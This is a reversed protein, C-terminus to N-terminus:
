GQVRPSSREKESLHLTTRVMLHDSPFANDAHDPILRCPGPHLSMGVDAPDAETSSGYHDASGVQLGLVYIFDIRDRPEATPPEIQSWTLGPARYPDPHAHRFADVYGADVLRGTAPWNVVPRVTGNWDAPSPVNFDGAVIVPIDGLEARLRDTEALVTAIQADRRREGPLALVEDRGSPLDPALYPGYDTHDLHVSWVLLPGRRSEVIAATAYPETASPLVRLPTTAMVATDHGQQAHNMGTAEALRRGAEGACEQLAVIDAHQAKIIDAQKRAADTIPSGGLWLNWSVVRLGETASM